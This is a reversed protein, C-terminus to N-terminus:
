KIILQIISIISSLGDTVPETDNWRALNEGIPKENYSYSSHELRQIESLHLAHKQAMDGIDVSYKLPRANHVLRFENHANLIKEIIEETLM